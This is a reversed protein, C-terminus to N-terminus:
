GTWGTSGTLFLNEKENLGATKKTLPPASGQVELRNSNGYNLGYKM